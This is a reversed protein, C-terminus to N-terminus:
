LGVLAAIVIPGTVACTGGFILGVGTSIPNWNVERKPAFPVIAGPPPYKGERLTRVGLFVTYVGFGITPIVLMRNAWRVLDPNRFAGQQVDGSWQVLIVYALFLVVFVSFCLNAVSQRTM